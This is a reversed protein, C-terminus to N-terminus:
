RSHPMGPLTPLDPRQKSEDRAPLTTQIPPLNIQAQQPCTPLQRFQEHAPQDSSTAAAPGAARDFIFYVPEGPRSPDIRTMGGLDFLPHARAMIAMAEVYRTPCVRCLKKVLISSLGLSRFQPHVIVRSITRLNANAFALNQARSFGQRQFFRERPRCSPVPYSLVAVAVLRRQRLDAWRSRGPRDEYRITWVDAWTAPRRALYHFCALE